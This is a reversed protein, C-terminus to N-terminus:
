DLYDLYDLYDALISIKTSLAGPAGVVPPAHDCLPRMAGDVRAGGQQGGDLGGDVAVRVRECPQLQSRRVQAFM